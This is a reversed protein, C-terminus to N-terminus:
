QNMLELLPYVNGFLTSIDGATISFSPNHVLQNMTTVSLLGDRRALETSAGHLLRVRNQDTSNSTLRATIEQLLTLLTKENTITQGGRNTRTVSTPMSNDNCYEKASIEFMSRLLFCFAIPNKELDLRVAEEKLTVVKQRNNGRPAFKRLTKKVTRPDNIAFVRPQRVPTATPGAQQQAPATTGPTSAGATSTAGSPATGSSSSTGQTNSPQSGAGPIAAATSTQTASGTDGSGNTSPTSPVAIAPIGYTALIDDHPDRLAAFGIVKVGIERIIEDLQARFPTGPYATALNAATAINIRPLIKRIAEELVTLPYDGAWREKQLSSANTSNALYKELLDLDPQPTNAMDRNHRARAVSTWKERAAGEGKGHTLAVIKDVLDVDVADYLACPIEANDQRWSAPLNTIKDVIQTPVGYDAPNLIGLMFKLAAVRRNGEKVIFIEAPQSGADQQALTTTQGDAAASADAAPAPQKLVIINETFLYGDDLISDM